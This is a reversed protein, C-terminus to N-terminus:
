QHTWNRFADSLLRTCWFAVMVEGIPPCGPVKIIPKAKSWNTSRRRVPRILNPLRARLWQLCLQGLRHYKQRRCCDGRCSTLRLVGGICCYVGDEYVPVSGEVCLVYQRFNKWQKTCPQRLRPYRFCGDLDRHLGAIDKILSLMRWLPHSSRIFSESCCTCEQFHM